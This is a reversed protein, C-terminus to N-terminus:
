RRGRVRDRSASSVAANKKLVMASSSSRSIALERRRSSRSASVTSWSEFASTRTAAPSKLTCTSRSKPPSAV